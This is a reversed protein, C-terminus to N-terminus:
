EENFKVEGRKIKILRFVYESLWRGAETMKKKFGSAFVRRTVPVVIVPDTPAAPTLIPQGADDNVQVPQPAVQEVRTMWTTVERPLEEERPRLDTLMEQSRAQEVVPRTEKNDM